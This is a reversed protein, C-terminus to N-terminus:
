FTVKAAVTLATNRYSAGVLNSSVKDGRLSASLTVPRLPEWDVGISTSQIIDRRGNQGSGPAIDRWDRAIRDYRLNVSTRATAKWVPGIFFRNSEIHGGDDLGSSTLYRMAGAVVSTKGTAEWRVTASGFPGSFDSAPANPHTRQLHGLTAELSTKGSLPWKLLVEAENERFDTPSAPSAPATYKGDGRRFRAFLSSGSAFEYGGGVVASHVTPSADWSIPVTTSSSTRSVGALARWAGDIDYIGELVESRETRRGIESLGGVLALSSDRYQRRDASLVGHLAPTFRWDWAAAYTVTSFNLNSLNRYRYAAVEADARFHQLGYNREAKVGVSLVGIDDSQENASSQLVNSDHEVGASARFQLLNPPEARLVAPFLCLSALSILPRIPLNKL